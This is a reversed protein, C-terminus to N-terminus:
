RKKRREKEIEGILDELRGESEFREWIRKVVDLYGHLNFEAEAQEELSLGPYLDTLSLDGKIENKDM